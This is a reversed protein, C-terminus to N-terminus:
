SSMNPATSCIQTGDGLAADGVAADAVAADQDCEAAGVAARGRHPSEVVPTARAALQKAGASLRRGARSMWLRRPPSPLAGFSFLPLWPVSPSKSQAPQSVAGLGHCRRPSAPLAGFSCLPSAPFSCRPFARSMWLRRPSSPLAFRAPCRILSSPFGPIHLSPLSPTPSHQKCSTLACLARHPRFSFPQQCEQERKARAYYAVTHHSHTHARARARAHYTNTDHRFM